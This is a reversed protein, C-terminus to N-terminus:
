FTSPMKVPTNDLTPGAQLIFFAMSLQLQIACVSFHLSGFALVRLGIVVFGVGGLGWILELIFVTTRDSVDPANGLASPRQSWLDVAKGLGGLLIYPKRCYLFLKFGPNVMLTTARIWLFGKSSCFRVRSNPSFNDEKLQKEAVDCLIEVDHKTWGHTKDVAGFCVAPSGRNRGLNGIKLNRDVQVQHRAHWLAKYNPHRPMWAGSYKQLAPISVFNPQALCPGSYASQPLLASVTVLKNM